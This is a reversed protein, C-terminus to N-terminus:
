DEHQHETLCLMAALGGRKGGSARHSFLWDSNCKTCLESISINEDPIGAELLIRRNAEWLNIRYKDDDKNVIFEQPHLETHKAFERYVPADV